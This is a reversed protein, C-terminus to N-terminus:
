FISEPGSFSTVKTSLDDLVVLFLWTCFPLSKTCCSKFFFLPSLSSYSSSSPSSTKCQYQHGSFPSSSSPHHHLIQHSSTKCQYQRGPRPSCRPRSPHVRSGVPASNCQSACEVCEVVIQVAICEKKCTASRRVLHVAIFVKRYSDVQVANCVSSCTADGRLLQVTICM